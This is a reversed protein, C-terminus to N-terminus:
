RLLCYRIVELAGNLDGMVTAASVRVVRYGARALVRDRRADARARQAHYGGDVEVVLRLSPALFDVIFGEVVAQRRFGVGLRGGRLAEWLRAESLTPASRTQRAYVELRAQREVSSRRSM